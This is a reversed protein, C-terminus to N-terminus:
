RLWQGIRDWRLDWWHKGRSWGVMFAKGVVKQIDVTGWYRSDLSADLNDGLVFLQGPPIQQPALRMAPAMGPGADAEDEDALLKRNVYLRGGREEVVDGPVGVVRKVFERGEARPFYFVIIDGRHPLHWRYVLRNVLLTDRPRLAPLMSASSVTFAQVAYAQALWFLAASAALVLTSM